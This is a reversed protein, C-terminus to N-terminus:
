SPGGNDVPAESYALDQASITQSARCITPALSGSPRGPGCAGGDTYDKFLPTHEHRSGTPSLVSATSAPIGCVSSWWIQRARSCTVGIAPSSSLPPFCPRLLSVIPPRVQGAILSRPSRLLSVMETKNKIHNGRGLREAGLFRLRM